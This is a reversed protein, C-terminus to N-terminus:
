FIIVSLLFCSIKPSRSHNCFLLDYFYELEHRWYRQFPQIKSHWTCFRCYIHLMFWIFSQFNKCHFNNMSAIYSCNERVKTNNFLLYIFLDAKKKTFSYFIQDTAVSYVSFGKLIPNIESLAKPWLISTISFACINESHRSWDAPHVLRKHFRYSM